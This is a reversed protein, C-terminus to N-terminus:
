EICFALDDGFGMVKALKIGDVVVGSPGPQKGWLTMFLHQDLANVISDGNLDANADDTRFVGRFYSLDAINVQGNNDFDADCLNGYGDGNTDLQSHGGEDRKDPGNAVNICNDAYDPVGDKDKDHGLGITRFIHNNLRTKPDGVVVDQWGLAASAMYYSDALNYGRLYRKFLLDPHAMSALYPESVYGKVGTVGEAVLDAILSQGYVPPDTFTRGSTSVFTEALAGPAWSFSPIGYATSLHSYHDNSGWSAYGLVKSKGTVYTNTQDLLTPYGLTKTIDAAQRLWDNGESAAKPDVDFVFQGTSCLAFNGNDILRVVDEYNYGTLRTVLYIGWTKHSFPYVLRNFSKFPNLIPGSKAILDSYPGLILTLESDVSAHNDITDAAAKEPRSPDSEIRLPVGKTTVIYNIRDVLNQSLLYQEVPTRITRDFDKRNITEKRPAHIHLLNGAPIDRVTSIYEGIRRSVGSEDNIIVLVDHYSGYTSLVSPDLIHIVTELISSAQHEDVATSAISYKGPRLDLTIYIAREKKGLLKSIVDIDKTDILGDSNLDSRSDYGGEREAIVKKDSLTVGGDFDLDGMVVPQMTVNADPIAGTVIKYNVIDNTDSDSAWLYFGQEASPLLELYQRGGSVNEAYFVPAHNSYFNAVGDDNFDLKLAAIVGKRYIMWDKIDVRGLGDFNAKGCQGTGDRGFCALFARFDTNGQLWRSDISSDGNLDYKLADAVNKQLDALDFFTIKGDGDFDMKACQESIGAKLCASFNDLDSPGNPSVHSYGSMPILLLGIFGIFIALRNFLVENGNSFRRIASFFFCNTHRM